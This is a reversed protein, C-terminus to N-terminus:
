SVDPTRNPESYTFRGKGWDGGIHIPNYRMGPSSLNITGRDSRRGARQRGNIYIKIEARFNYPVLDIRMGDTGPLHGM